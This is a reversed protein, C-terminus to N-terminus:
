RRLTQLNFMGDDLDVDLELQTFRLVTYEGEKDHPTVRMTMATPRGGIEQVDEFAITRVKVGDEDFFEQTQPVLNPLVTFRV